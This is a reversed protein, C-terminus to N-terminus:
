KMIYIFMLDSHQTGSILTINYELQLEIKLFPIFTDM